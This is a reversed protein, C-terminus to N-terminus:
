ACRGISPITTSSPPADALQADIWEDLEVWRQYLWRAFGDDDRPVEAAPYRWLKMRVTGGVIDGRWMDKPYEFSDLGLHGFVVVDSDPSNQLLVTPGAVKPPLVHRLRRALDAVAPQREAVIQQARTLKTPSFLTGEPYIILAEDTHLDETLARLRRLEADPDESGRQVFVTPVWRRGIDITPLNLLERKLVYRPWMDHAISVFTEPLLTDVTSAHRMLFVAPGGRALEMGDGEFRLGFIWRMGKLHGGLWQRRLRYVRRDVHPPRGVTLLRIWTLGLLGRLECFVAWWVFALLRVAMWPKRHQVWRVLDVAAAVLALEPELGTILLFLILQLGIGRGRRYLLRSFSEDPYLLSELRGGSAGREVRRSM